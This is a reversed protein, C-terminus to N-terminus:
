CTAADILSLAPRPQSFFTDEGLTFYALIRTGAPWEAAKEAHRFWVAKLEETGGEPQLKLSLHSKDKGIVSAKAIRFRARFIPKPNGNGFPELRKLERCLTLYPLDLGSLDAEYGTSEESAPASFAQPFRECFAPFAGPKLVFGAAKTHGGFNELLDAVSRLAEVANWHGCARLSGHGGGSPDQCVVAVPVGMREMLRAAVIGAVGAFVAECPLILVHGSPTLQPSHHHIAHLLMQEGTKRLQNLAVLDGALRAVTAPEDSALLSYVRHLPPLKGGFDYTSRLGPEQSLRELLAGGVRGAANICPVIGFGLDEATLPARTNGRIARLLEALGLNGAQRQLAALGRAVLARSEGSLEMVDAITAVAVLDLYAEPHIPFGRQALARVVTFATACGCIGRVPHGPPLFQPNVTAFAEPLREPLAHHDTVVVDIGQAMLAAVQPACSIGCDVTILLSPTPRHRALCRAVAADTLGYGEQERSPFFPRVTTAGAAKLAKVVLTTGTIGDADYDGFVSIPENAEIARAIRDVAAEMGPLVFPDCLEALHPALWPRWDSLAQTRRAVMAAVLPSLGAEAAITATREADPSELLTWCKALPSM